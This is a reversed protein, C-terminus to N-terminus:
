AGLTEPARKSEKARIDFSAEADDYKKLYDRILEAEVLLGHAEQEKDDAINSLLLRLEDAAKWLHDKGKEFTLLQKANIVEGTELDVYKSKM